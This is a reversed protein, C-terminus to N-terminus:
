LSEETILQKEIEAQKNQWYVVNQIALKQQIKIYASMYAYDPELDIAPLPLMLDTAIKRTFKTAYDFRGATIKRFVSVIYLLSERTWKDKDIPYVGQVHSYGIFDNPQYFISDATTTDSFTIINGKETPPLNVYGGIGNHQSSNVIVPTTGPSAFLKDNTLGYSKTPHIDFLDGLRFLKFRSERERERNAFCRKKM